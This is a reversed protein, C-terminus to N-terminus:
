CVESTVNEFGDTQNLCICFFTPTMGRHHFGLYRKESMQAFLQLAEARSGHSRRLMEDTRKRSSSGNSDHRGFSILDLLPGYVCRIRETM